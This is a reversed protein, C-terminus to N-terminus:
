KTDGGKMLELALEIKKSHAGWMFLSFITIAHKLNKFYFTKGVKMEEYVRKAPVRGHEYTRRIIEVFLAYSEVTSMIAIAQDYKQSAKIAYEYEEEADEEKALKAIQKYSSIYNLFDKTSHYLERAEDQATLRTCEEAITEDPVCGYRILTNKLSRKEENTLEYM